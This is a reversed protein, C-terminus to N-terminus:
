YALILIEIFWGTYRFTSATRSWFSSSICVFSRAITCSSAPAWCCQFLNLGIGMHMGLAIGIGGCPTGRRKAHGGAVWIAALCCGTFLSASSLIGGCCFCCSTSRNCTNARVKWKCGSNTLFRVPIIKPNGLQPLHHRFLGPETSHWFSSWWGYRCRENQDCPAGPCIMRLSMMRAAHRDIATSGRM